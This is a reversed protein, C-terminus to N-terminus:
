GKGRKSDNPALKLHEPLAAFNPRNKALWEAFSRFDGGEYHHKRLMLLEERVAELLADADTLIRRADAAMLLPGHGMFDGGDKGLHEREDAWPDSM